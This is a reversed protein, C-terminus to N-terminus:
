SGQSCSVSLLKSAEDISDSCAQLVASSTGAAQELDCRTM